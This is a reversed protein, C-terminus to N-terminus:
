DHSRAVTSRDVRACLDGNEDHTDEPQSIVPPLVPCSPPLESSAVWQLIQRYARDWRQEGDARPQFQRHVRWQRKM